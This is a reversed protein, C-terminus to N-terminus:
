EDRTKGRRIVDRVLKVPVGSRNVYEVDAKFEDLPPDHWIGVTWQTRAVVPQANLYQRGKNAGKYVRDTLELTNFGPPGRISSYHQLAIRKVRENYTSFPCVFTDVDIGRSEFVQKSGIVELSIEPWNLDDLDVHRVGHSGIEHGRQQLDFVEEWTITSKFPFMKNREKVRKRVVNRLCINFVGRYDYEELIDALRPWCAYGDDFTFTFM